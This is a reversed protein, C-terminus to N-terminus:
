KKVFALLTEVSPPMYSIKRQLKCYYSWELYSQFFLASRTRLFHSQIIVSSTFLRLIIEKIFCSSTIIYFNTRYNHLYDSKQKEVKYSFLRDALLNLKYKNNHKRVLHSQFYIRLVDM